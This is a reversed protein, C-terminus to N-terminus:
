YRHSPLKKLTSLVNGYKVFHINKSQYVIRFGNVYNYFLGVSYKYNFNMYKAGFGYTFGMYIPLKMTKYKNFRIINKSVVYKKGSKKVEYFRSYKYFKKNLNNAYNRAQRLNKFSKINKSIFKPSGLGYKIIIFSGTNKIINCSLSDDVDSVYYYKTFGYNEPYDGEKAFGALLPALNLYYLESKTLTTHYSGIKFTRDYVTTKKAKDWIEEASTYANGIAPVIPGSSLTEVNDQSTLTDSDNAIALPDETESISVVESYNSEKELSVEENEGTALDDSTVNEGASAVSITFLVLLVLGIIFFRNRNNM